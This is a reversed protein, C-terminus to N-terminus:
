IIHNKLQLLLLHGIVAQYSTSLQHIQVTMDGDGCIYFQKKTQSALKKMLLRFAYSELDTPALDVIEGPANEAKEMSLNQRRKLVITGCCVMKDGLRGFLSEQLCQAKGGSFIHTIMECNATIM